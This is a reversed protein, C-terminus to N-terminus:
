TRGHYVKRYIITAVVALVAVAVVVVIIIAIVTSRPLSMTTDGGYIVAGTASSRSTATSTGRASTALTTSASTLGGTKQKTCLETVGTGAQFYRLMSTEPTTQGACAAQAETQIGELSTICNATCPNTAVFDYAACNPITTNYVTSCAPSLNTIPTQDFSSLTYTAQAFSVPDEAFVSGILLLVAGSVLSQLMMALKSQLQDQQPTNLILPLVNAADLGQLASALEFVCAILQLLGLHVYKASHLYWRVSSEQADRWRSSRL